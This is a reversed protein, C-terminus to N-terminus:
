KTVMRKIRQLQKVIAVHSCEFKDGIERTTFGQEVMHCLILQTPNLKDMAEAIACSNIKASETSNFRM